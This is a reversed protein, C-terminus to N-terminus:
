DLLLLGKSSPFKQDFSGIYIWVISWEIAGTCFQGRLNRVKNQLDITCLTLRFVPVM